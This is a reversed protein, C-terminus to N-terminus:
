RPPTSNWNTLKLPQRSLVQELLQQNTAATTTLSQLAKRQERQEEKISEFEFKSFYACLAIAIAAVTQMSTPKTMIPSQILTAAYRCRM